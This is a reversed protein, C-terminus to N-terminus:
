NLPHHITVSLTQQQKRLTLNVQKETEVNQLLEVLAQINEIEKGNLETIIDGAELNQFSLQRNRVTHIKVGESKYRYDPIFSKHLTHYEKLLSDQIMSAAQLQNFYTIGAKGHQVFSKSSQPSLLLHFQPISKNFYSASYLNKHPKQFLINSDTKTVAEEWRPQIGSDIVAKQQFQKPMNVSLFVHRNGSPLHRNSFRQWGKSFTNDEPFLAFLFNMATATDKSFQRAWELWLSIQGQNNAKTGDKNENAEQKKYTSTVVMTRNADNNQRAVFTKGDQKIEKINIKLITKYKYDYELRRYLPEKLYLVPINFTDTIKSLDYPPRPYNPDLCVFVVGTAGRSIAEKTKAEISAHKIFPSNKNYGDPVSIRMIFVNGELKDETFKEYDNYDMSPAHIGFNVDIMGAKIEGSGSQPLPYYDKGLQYSFRNVKFYNEGAVERNIRIAYHQFYSAGTDAPLYGHESFFGPLYRNLLLNGASDSQSSFHAIREKNSQLNAALVSDEPLPIQSFASSGSLLLCIFLRLFRCHILNMM